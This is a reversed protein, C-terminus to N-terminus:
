KITLEGIAIGSEGAVSYLLYLKGADEFVYPDRLQRAEGYYLGPKSAVIPADAGEYKETPIAVDIPASPTWTNWDDNLIIKSVVIREPADGVKSYFVLLTDGILKVAAHRLYNDKNQIKSFPNPGQTFTQIGDPSKGLQGARSISYFNGHWKFVRFYSYGLVISDAKFHIGDKSTARLSYQGKYIGKEIPCHFYLVFEKNVSDILVDPSAVHTVEDESSEAGEHKISLASNPLGYECTKCDTIQLTGPKYIKWPGKLDDAYALRIYKGKHHAFYLYYKGLKNQVWDPVKILSPGNIDEGDSSDLLAPTIIPNNKFREFSITEQARVSLSSILLIAAFYLVRVKM